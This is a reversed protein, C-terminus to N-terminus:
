DEERIFYKTDINLKECAKFLIKQAEEYDFSHGLNLNISYRNNGNVKIGVTRTNRYNSNLTSHYQNEKPTVWELNELRNDNGIHNIHNVYLSGMGEVPNFSMLVLRHITFNPTKGNINFSCASYGENTLKLKRVLRNYKHIIRGKNSVQYNPIEYCDVFVEGELLELKKPNTFIRVSKNKIKKEKIPRTDISKWQLNEININKSDNDLYYVTFYNDNKISNFARLVEKAVNVRKYSGNKYLNCTVYSEKNNFGKYLKKSSEIEVINGLNSIIYREEYGYVPLFSEDELPTYFVSKFNKTEKKVKPLPKDIWILNNLNNNEKNGDVRTVWKNEMNEVPNFVELVTRHVSYEKLKIKFSKYGGNTTKLKLIGGSPNKVNGLNSIEYGDKFEKFIEM